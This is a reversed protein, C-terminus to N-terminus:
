KVAHVQGGENGQCRRETLKWERGSNIVACSLSRSTNGIRPGPHGRQEHIDMM